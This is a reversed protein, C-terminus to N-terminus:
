AASATMVAGSLDGAIYINGPCLNRLSAAMAWASVLSTFSASTILVQLPAYEKDTMMVRLVFYRSTNEEM